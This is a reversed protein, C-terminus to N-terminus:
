SNNHDIPLSLLLAFHVKPLPLFPLASRVKFQELFASKSGRTGWGMVHARRGVAVFEFM